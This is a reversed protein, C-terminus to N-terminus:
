YIANNFNVNAFTSIATLAFKTKLNRAKVVKLRMVGGTYDFQSLMEEDLQNEM